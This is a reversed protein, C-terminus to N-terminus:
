RCVLRCVISRCRLAAAGATEAAFAGRMRGGMQARLGPGERAM